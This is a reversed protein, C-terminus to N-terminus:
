WRSQIAPEVEEGVALEVFLAGLDTLGYPTSAVDLGQVIQTTARCILGQSELRPLASLVELFGVRHNRDVLPTEKWVRFVEQSWGDQLQWHSDSSAIQKMLERYRTVLGIQSRYIARLVLVDTDLLIASIRTFEAIQQTRIAQEAADNTPWTQAGSILLRSIRKKKGPDATTEAARAAQLTLAAGRSSMWELVEKLKDNFQELKSEHYCLDILVASCVEEIGSGSKSDSGLVELAGKALVSLGKVKIDPAM